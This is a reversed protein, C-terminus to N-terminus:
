GSNITFLKSFHLLLIIPLYVIPWIPFRGSVPKQYYNIKNKALRTTRVISGGISKPHPTVPKLLPAVM